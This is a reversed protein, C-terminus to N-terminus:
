RLIIESITDGVVQRSIERADAVAKDDSAVRGEGELSLVEVGLLDALFEAHTVHEFARHLAVLVPHADVRLEDVRLGTGMKPCVPKLFVYGVQEFQLILHHCTQRICQTDFEGIFGM